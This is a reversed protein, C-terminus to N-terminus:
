NSDPLAARVGDDLAASYLDGLRSVRELVEDATFSLPGDGDVEDWSVPTSVTPNPRARLSYPAVTTKAPSNQSWDVLVKDTRLTKTMRSVILDPHEAELDIALAHAYRSCHEPDDAVVPASMQMGKSGSTKVVPTLGDAELRERMLLAVQRCQQIDAPPGPDLDCM